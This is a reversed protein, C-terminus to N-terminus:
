FAIGRLAIQKKEKSKQEIRYILSIEHSGGTATGLTSTTIDYSYAASLNGRQTGLYLIIADSKRVGVGARICDYKVTMRILWEEFDRQKLYIIDPNFAWLSSDSSRFIVGANYSYRRPLASGASLRVFSEEPEFLHSVSFDAYLNKTYMLIGTGFDFFHQNSRAEVRQTSPQGFGYRPDIVDGFTLRDTDLHRSRYGGTIGPQIVVNNLEIHAAYVINFLLSTLTGEGADDYISYAGIGGRIPRIYQNYSFMYTKFTGTLAPWQNRYDLSFEPVMESGAFAPNLYLKNTHFHSFHPDQAKSFTALLLFLILPLFKKM